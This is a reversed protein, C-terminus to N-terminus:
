GEEELSELLSEAEDPSVVVSKQGTFIVQGPHGRRPRRIRQFPLYDVNMKLNTRGRSFYAALVAAQRIAADPPEGSSGGPPMRLIVHSGPLGQAHFWLDGDRGIQRVLFDNGLASKGVYIGWGESSTFCRYPRQQREVDKKRGKRRPKKKQDPGGRKKEYGGQTLAMRVAELDEEIEAEELDFSLGDLFLKEREVEKKRELAFAAQRKLKKYRRFYRQANDSPSYRPDLAIEVTRGERETLFSSSKEPVRALEELLVEGKFREEEASESSRLDQEVAKMTKEAKMSYRGIERGLAERASAMAEREVNGGYFYDAAQNMSDFFRIEDPSATRFELASLRSPAGKEDLKIVPRYRNERMALIVESYAKWLNGREDAGQGGALGREAIESAVLPSIGRFSNVLWGSVRGSESKESLGELAMQCFREEDVSDAPSKKQEPPLQYAHNRVLPRKRSQEEAVPKICDIIRGTRGEVLVINSWRGMIEAMLAFVSPPKGSVRRELTIQVIREWEGMAVRTIKAGSLHKRLSRCFDPPEAPGPRNDETLHLRPFVADASVVLRHVKRGRGECVLYITNRDPQSIRQIRGGKLATDLEHAIAKLVFLDMEDMYGTFDPGEHRCFFHRASGPEAGRQFQCPTKPFKNYISRIPEQFRGSLIITVFLM